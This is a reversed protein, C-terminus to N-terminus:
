TQLRGSLILAFARGRPKGPGPCPRRPGGLGAGPQQGATDGRTGVGRQRRGAAGKSLLWDGEGSRLRCGRLLLEGGGGRADAALNSRDEPSRLGGLSSKRARSRGSLVVNPLKTNYCHLM